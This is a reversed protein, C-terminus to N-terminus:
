DALSNKRRYSRLLRAAETQGYKEAVQLPTEGTSTRLGTDAGGAEVLLQIMAVSGGRAAMHLPSWGLSAQRLDVRIDDQHLLLEVVDPHNKEVAIYLPSFGENGQANVNAGKNLLLTVISRYGGHCAMLLPTWGNNKKLDVQIGRQDLLWKVVDLHNNKVAEWLPSYGYNDQANVDAGKALLLGAIKLNRNYCAKRLPTLGNQLKIDVQININDLLLEVVDAHNREVASWLPSFGGNNQTNVDAGKNLLLEAIDRYGDYCAKFLPTWGINIKLDVLIGAQNLLLKVIDTHNNQAAVYLSSYGGNEQANVDARKKLLLIIINMHGQFCANILPTLGDKNRKEILINEQDLLLKVVATHNNDVALLLSTSGRVTQVNIDAGRVLLLEASNIFGKECARVLPTRGDSLKADVEIEGHGLLLKM